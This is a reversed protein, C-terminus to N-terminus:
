EHESSRRCHLHLNCFKHASQEITVRPQTATSQHHLYRENRHQAVAFYVSNQELAVAIRMMGVLADIQQHHNCAPNGSQGYIMALKLFNPWNKVASAMFIFSRM